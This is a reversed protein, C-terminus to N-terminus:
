TKKFFVICMYLIILIIFLILSLKLCRTCYKRTGIVVENNNDVYDNIQIQPYISQYSPLTSYRPDTVVYQYSPLSSNSTSTCIRTNNPTHTNNMNSETYNPPNSDYLNYPPIYPTNDYTCTNIEQNNM